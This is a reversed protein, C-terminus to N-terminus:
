YHIIPLITNSSCIMNSISVGADSSNHKQKSSAASGHNQRQEIFLFTIGETHYTATHPINGIQGM